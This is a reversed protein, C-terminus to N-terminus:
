ISSQGLFSGPIGMQPNHNLTQFFHEDPVRIDRMWHLLDQARSDNLVFELFERTVAMHTSGKAIDFGHPAPDKSAVKLWRGHVRKHLGHVAVDRWSFQFFDPFYGSCVFVYIFNVFILGCIYYNYM